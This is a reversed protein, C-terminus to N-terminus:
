RYGAPNQSLKQMALALRQRIQSDPPAYSLAERYRKRATETQGDFSLRDGDNLLVQAATEQANRQMESVEARDKESLGPQAARRTWAARAEGFYAIAAEIDNERAAILGLTRYAEGYNGALQRAEDCALRAAGPNSQLQENAWNVACIAANWALRDRPQEGKEVATKYLQWARYFDNVKTANEAQQTLPGLGASTGQQAAHRNAELGRTVSWVVFILLLAVMVAVAIWGFFWRLEPSILPRAPAPYAPPYQGPPYQGPPMGPYPMQAPMGAPPMGGPPGGQPMPPRQVPPGGPRPPPM